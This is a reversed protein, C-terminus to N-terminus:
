KGYSSSRLGKELDRLFDESYLKTKRFNRVVKDVPNQILSEFVQVKLLRYAIAEKKLKQYEIKPVTITTM